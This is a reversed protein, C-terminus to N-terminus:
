YCRHNHFMCKLTMNVIELFLIMNIQKGLILMGLDCSAVELTHLKITVATFLVETYRSTIGPEHLDALFFFLIFFFRYIVFHSLGSQTMLGHLPMPIYPCGKKLASPVHTLAM